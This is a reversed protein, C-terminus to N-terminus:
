SPTSVQNSVRGVAAAVTLLLVVVQGGAWEGLVESVDVSQAITRPFEHYATSRIGSM